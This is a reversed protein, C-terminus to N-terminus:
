FVLLFGRKYHRGDYLSHFGIMMWICCFSNILLVALSFKDSESPGSPLVTDKPQPRNFIRELESQQEHNTAM